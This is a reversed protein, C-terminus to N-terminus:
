LDGITLDSIDLEGELRLLADLAEDSSLVTEVRVPADTDLAKIAEANDKTVPILAPFM